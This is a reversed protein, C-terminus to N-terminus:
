CARDHAQDRALRSAPEIHHDGVIATLRELLGDRSVAAAEVILRLEEDLSRGSRAARDQLRQAIAEPVDKIVLTIPM